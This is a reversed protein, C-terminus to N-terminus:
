RKANNRIEITLAFKEFDQEAGFKTVGQREDDAKLASCVPDFGEERTFHEVDGAMDQRRDVVEGFKDKVFEPLTPSPDVRAIEDEAHIVM